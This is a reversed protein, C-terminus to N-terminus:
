DAPSAPWPTKPGSLLRARSARAAGAEESGYIYLVRFRRTIKDPGVM